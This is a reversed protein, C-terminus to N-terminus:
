QGDLYSYVDGFCDREALQLHLRDLVDDVTDQKSLVKVIRSRLDYEEALGLLSSAGLALAGKVFSTLAYPLSGGGTYPSALLAGVGVAINGWAACTVICDAGETAFTYSKEIVHLATQAWPTYEAYKHKEDAIALTTTQHCFDSIVGWKNPSVKLDVVLVDFSPTYQGVYMAGGVVLPMVEIVGHKIANVSSVMSAFSRTQPLGLMTCAGLSAAALAIQLVGSSMRIVGLGVSAVPLYGIIKAHTSSISAIVNITVKKKDEWDVQYVLRTLVEDIKEARLYDLVPLFTSPTEILTQVSAMSPLRADISSVSM